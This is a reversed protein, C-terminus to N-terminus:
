ENPDIAEWLTGMEEWAKDAQDILAEAKERTELAEAMKGETALRFADTMITYAEGNLALSQRMKAGIAQTRETPADTGISEGWASLCQAAEAAYALGEEYAAATWEEGTPRMSTCAGLSSFSSTRLDHFWRHEEITLLVSGAPVPQASLSDFQRDVQALLDAGKAFLASAEDRLAIAQDRQGGAAAEFASALRAHAEVHVQTAEVLLGQIGRAVEPAKLAHVVEELLRQFCLTDSEASQRAYDYESEAMTELYEGTNNYCFGARYEYDWVVSRIYQNLERAVDATLGMEIAPPTTDISITETAADWSIKGGLAETIFRLPVMTRGEIIRAPVELPVLGGNVEAEMAGLTLSITIQREAHFATVTQTAGDWRITAGLAEFIARMPVLTRGDVISPPVDFSVPTGDLRVQVAASVPAALALLLILVTVLTWRPRQM